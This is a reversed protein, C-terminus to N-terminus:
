FTPTPLTHGPPKHLHTQKTVMAGPLGRVGQFGRLGQPGVKGSIGM